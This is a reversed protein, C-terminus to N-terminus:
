FGDAHEQMKRVREKCAQTRGGNHHLPFALLLRVGAQYQNALSPQPTAKPDWSGRREIYALYDALEFYPGALLNGASFM